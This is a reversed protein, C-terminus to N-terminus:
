TQKTRPARHAHTGRRVLSEWRRENWRVFITFDIFREDASSRLPLASPFKQAMSASQSIRRRALPRVAVFSVEGWVFCFGNRDKAHCYISIFISLFRSPNRVNRVNREFKRLVCHCMSACESAISRISTFVIRSSSSIVSVFVGFGCNMSFLSYDDLSRRGPSRHRRLFLNVLVFLRSISDSGSCGFHFSSHFFVNEGNKIVM